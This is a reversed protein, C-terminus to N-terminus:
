KIGVGNRNKNKEYVIEGDLLTADVKIDTIKEIPSNLLSTDLIVLDALKGAEISGKSKEDFSAFAANYTYMRIADMLSVKQQQGFTTGQRTLRAVATYIGVLPNATTIPADSGAATIIGQNLLDRAAYM